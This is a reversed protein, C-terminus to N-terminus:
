CILRRLRDALAPTRLDPMGWRIFAYGEARIADERRKEAYVAEADAYKLRGDAEGALRASEWLFDVRGLFLGNPSRIDAQCRPLPIRHEVFYAYSMSELPSERAGSILRLARRARRVGRVGGLADLRRALERSTVAGAALAADGVCLADALSGTRALDVWTRAANTVPVGPDLLDSVQVVASRRLIGSRRGTWAGPPVVLTVDSPTSSALPFGLCIAASEFGVSSGSNRRAAAMARAMHDLRQRTFPDVGAPLPDRCRYLDRAVRVFVGIRVRYQVQRASLGRAAADALSFVPPLPADAARSRPM